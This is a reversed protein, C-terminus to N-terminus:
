PRQGGDRTGRGAAVGGREALARALLARFKVESPGERYHKWAAAVRGKRDVIVFSPFGTIQYRAYGVAEAEAAPDFLSIGGLEPHDGEYKALEAREATTTIRVLELGRPRLDRYVKDV